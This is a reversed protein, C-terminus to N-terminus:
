VWYGTDLRDVVSGVGQEVLRWAAATLSV